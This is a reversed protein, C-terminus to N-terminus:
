YVKWRTFSSKKAMKRCCSRFRWGMFREFIMTIILHKKKEDRSSIAELNEGQTLFASQSENVEM